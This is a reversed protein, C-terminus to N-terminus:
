SKILTPIQSGNVPFTFEKNEYHPNDRLFDKNLVFDYCHTPEDSVLQVTTSTFGSSITKVHIKGDDPETESIKKLINILMRSREKLNDDFSSVKQILSDLGSFYKFLSYPISTLSFIMSNEDLKSKIFVNDVFMKDQDLHAWNSISIIKSKEDVLWNSKVATNNKKDSFRLLPRVFSEDYLALLINYTIGAADDTKYKGLIGLVGIHKFNRNTLKDCENYVANSERKAENILSIKQDGSVSLSGLFNKIQYIKKLKKVRVVDFRVKEYIKGNQDLCNQFYENKSKYLDYINTIKNDESYVETYYPFAM